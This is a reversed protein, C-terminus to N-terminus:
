LGSATVFLADLGDDDLGIAQGLQVLLPRHREFDNSKDWEIQALKRQVPDAIADIAPQVDDYLGALILAQHAQRATVSQPVASAPPADQIEATRWAGPYQADAFEPSANIVNAVADGDMIEIRM